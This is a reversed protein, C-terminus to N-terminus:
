HEAILRLKNTILFQSIRTKRDEDIEKNHSLFLLDYYIKRDLVTKKAIMERYTKETLAAQDQIEQLKPFLRAIEERNQAAVREKFTKEREMDLIKIGVKIRAEIHYDQAKVYTVTELGGAREVEKVVRLANDAARSSVGAMEGLLKSDPWKGTKDKYARAIAEVKNDRQPSQVPNHLSTKWEKEHITRVSTRETKELVTRTWEPREAWEILIYRDNRSVINEGLGHESCAKGFAENDKFKARIAALSVSLLLKGEVFKQKSEVGMEVGRRAEAFLRELDNPFKVVTEASV